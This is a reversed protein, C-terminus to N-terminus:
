RFATAHQHKERPQRLDLSTPFPQVMGIGQPVPLHTREMALQGQVALAFGQFAAMRFQVALENQGTANGFARDGNIPNPQHDVAAEAALQAKVRVSSHLSQLGNGGAERARIM